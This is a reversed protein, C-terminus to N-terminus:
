RQLFCRLAQELKFFVELMMLIDSLFLAIGKGRWNM